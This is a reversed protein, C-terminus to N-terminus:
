RTPAGTTGQTAVAEGALIKFGERAYEMAKLLALEAARDLTAENQDCALSVVALIKFEGFNHQTGVQFGVNSHTAGPTALRAFQDDKLVERKLV